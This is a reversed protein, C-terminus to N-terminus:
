QQPASLDAVRVITCEIQKGSANKVKCKNGDVQYKVDSGVVFDTANLSKKESTRCTYQKGSAAFSLDYQQNKHDKDTTGAPQFDKLTTTGEIKSGAAATIAITMVLVVITNGKRMIGGGLQNYTSSLARRWLESLTSPSSGGSRLRFQGLAGSAPLQQFWMVSAILDILFIANKRCDHLITQRKAL